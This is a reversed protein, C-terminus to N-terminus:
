SGSEVRFRLVTKRLIESQHALESSASATEEANASNQQTVGDIQMLGRSIETVAQSQNQSAGAIERILTSVKTVESNIKKLAEVTEQATHSGREVDEVSRTIGEAAAKAANASRGALNRVEEAVVAFGKGHRGARASEVAANLALLNTQFAIDDIVKVIKVIENSSTKMDEMVRAMGQVKEVGVEAAARALEALSNVESSNEANARSQSGVETISASIQELSAAQETAGQSLSQSADSVEVSADAVTETVERIRTLDARLSNVMETLATGLTDNRGFARCEVTLDGKAIARAVDAKTSLEEAMANLSTAMLQLETLRADKFVACDRCDEGKLAKPCSPRSSFSGSELWCYADKGYSPCGKQGCNKIESCNMASGM